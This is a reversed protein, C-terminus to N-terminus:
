YLAFGTFDTFRTFVAVAFTPVFPGVLWGAVSTNTDDTGETPLEVAVLLGIGM